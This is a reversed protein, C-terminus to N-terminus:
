LANKSRMTLIARLICALHFAVHQSSLVRASLMCYLSRQTSLSCMGPRRVGAEAYRAGELDEHGKSRKHSLENCVCLRCIFSQLWDGPGGKEKAGGGGGGWKRERVDCQGGEDASAV